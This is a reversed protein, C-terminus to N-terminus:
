AVGVAQYTWWKDAIPEGGHETLVPGLEWGPRMLIPASAQWVEPGPDNGRRQPSAAMSHGTLEWYGDPNRDLYGELWPLLRQIAEVQEPNLLNQGFTEAKFWRGRTSQFNGEVEIQIHQDYQSNGVREDLNHLWMVRGTRTVVFHALVGLLREQNGSRSVSMQHMTVGIPNMLGLTGTTAEDRRDDMWPPLGDYSPEPEWTPWPDDPDAPPAEPYPADPWPYVEEGEEFEIRRPRKRRRGSMAVAAIVIAVVAAAGTGRGAM